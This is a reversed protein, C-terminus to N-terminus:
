HLIGVAHALTMGLAVALTAVPVAVFLIVLFGWRVILLDWKTPTRPRRIAILLFGAWYAAISIIVARACFGNDIIISGLLAFLVQLAFSDRIPSIYKDSLVMIGVSSRSIM